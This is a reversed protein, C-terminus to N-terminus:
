AVGGGRRVPPQPMPPLFATRVNKAERFAPVGLFVIIAANGALYLAVVLWRIANISM